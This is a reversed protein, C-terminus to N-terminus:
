TGPAVCAAQTRRPRAAARPQGSPGPPLAISCRPVEVLDPKLRACGPLEDTFALVVRTDAYRRRSVHVAIAQRVDDDPRVRGSSVVTPRRVDHGRRVRGNEIPQVPERVPDDQQAPNRPGPPTDTCGM